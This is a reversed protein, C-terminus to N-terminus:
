SLVVHCREGTQEKCFVVNGFSLRANGCKIFNEKVQCLIVVRCTVWIFLCAKAQRGIKIAGCPEQEYLM